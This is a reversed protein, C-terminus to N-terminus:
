PTMWLPRGCITSWIKGGGGQGCRDSNESGGPHGCKKTSFDVDCYLSLKRLNKNNITISWIIQLSKNLPNYILM